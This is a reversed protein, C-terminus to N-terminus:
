KPVNVNNTIASLEANLTNSLRERISSLTQRKILEGNKFVPKLEDGAIPVREEMEVLCFKDAQDKTVGLWGRASKKTGDDTVPDKFIARPINDGRRARECTSQCGDDMLCEREDECVGTLEGYTAKIAMGYTDRTVYQYTYSGIGLVVNTTAFKKAKLRECIQEARELTIADGYIVGVHPDLVKYGAENVHGGFTDWLLEVVGKVQAETVEKGARKKKGKAEVFNETGCIIDVPDGSDPRIVVKGDRALVKDKLLPLYETLVKWLDWTDSVISVIGSPYIETILREFTYIEDEKTGMCMVSHETAPVSIGVIENQQSYAGYFRELYPLSPISDTGIFSLLHGAGSAAGAFIGGMGRLSFDHGQISVAFDNGPDTIHMYQTFLKKYRYSTTASTIPQWVEASILTELMNPLWFFDPHTNYIRLFPVGVPVLSGEPLADIQIPLYGLDHLKAIHEFDSTSNLYRRMTTQYETMVDDKSRSFFDETFRRILWEMIFGQLGFMVIYNFGTRSKRATMNDAIFVTNSPYQNIHDVKYGDKALLPMLKM